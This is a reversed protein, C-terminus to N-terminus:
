TGQQMLKLQMKKDLQANIDAPVDARAIEKQRYELRTSGNRVNRVYVEMRQYVRNGEKVLYVIADSTVELIKDITDLIRVLVVTAWYKIEEWFTAVFAGAVFSGIVIVWTIPDMFNRRWLTKNLAM